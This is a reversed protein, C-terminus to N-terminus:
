SPQDFPCPGLGTATFLRAQSEGLGFCGKGSRFDEEAPWRCGAARVLRRAPDEPQERPIWRRAAILAHGIGERAYALHVATIGSAM